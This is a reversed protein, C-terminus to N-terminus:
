RSYAEIYPRMISQQRFSEAMRMLQGRTVVRRRLADELAELPIDLGIKRRYRFCDVITRAPNTVSVTVGAVQHREVGITMGARSFRVVRVPVAPRTPRRDRIGIAIWVPPPDQTGIEHFALASLLCVVANPTRLAVASLSETSAAPVDSWRYLGRGMRLIKGQRLLRRIQAAAYGLAPLDKPRFYVQSTSV